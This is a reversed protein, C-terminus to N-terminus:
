RSTSQITALGMGWWVKKEWFSAIQLNLICLLSDKVQCIPFQLKAACSEGACVM